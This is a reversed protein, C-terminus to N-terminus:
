EKKDLETIALKVCDVIMASLLMFMGLPMLFLFIGEYWPLDKGQNLANILQLYLALQFSFWTGNWMVSLFFEFRKM